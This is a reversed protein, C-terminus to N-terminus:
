SETVKCYLDSHIHRVALGVASGHRSIGLLSDEYTSCVLVIEIDCVVTCFGYCGDVVDDALITLDALLTMKVKARRNSGVIIAHQRQCVLYEAGVTDM